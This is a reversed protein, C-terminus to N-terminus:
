TVGMRGTMDRFRESLATHAAVLSQTYAEAPHGFVDATLGQEVVRGHKLVVIQDALRRVVGFDHSVFVLSAQETNKIKQFQDIVEKQSLSDLSSTPEDAIILEPNLALTVAGMVRQLMGGSLQHPYKLMVSKPDNFLLGALSREALHRAQEETLKQHTRLTEIMQGGIKYLPNFASQAEQIILGIRAGRIARMGQDSLRMLDIGDFIIEGGAELWPDLVGMIAKCTLSKGSGSEGVLGLCRNAPVSFSIGNVLELGSRKDTIRLNNITLVPM